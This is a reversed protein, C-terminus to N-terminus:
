ACTCPGPAACLLAHAGATDLRAAGHDAIAQYRAALDHEAVSHLAAADLAADAIARVATDWRGQAAATDILADLSAARHPYRTYADRARDLLAAPAAPATDTM